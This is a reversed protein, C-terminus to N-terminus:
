VIAALGPLSLQSVRAALLRKVIPSLREAKVEVCLGCLPCTLSWRQRLHRADWRTPGVRPTGFLEVSPVAQGSEDLYTRTEERRAARLSTRDGASQVVDRLLLLRDVQAVKPAHSAADCVIILQPGRSM